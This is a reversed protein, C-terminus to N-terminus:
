ELLSPLFLSVAPVYTVLLLAMLIALYFPWITRLTEEIKVRGVACGVFLCTGVPPTCLGLGLNVLLMIGFQTPDMGLDRVIPLFIPTCILILAAMDMIMGLVLLMINIMLLVAIKEESIGLMFSSLKEPVQYLALLYAFSSAFGILVMVMATTRVASVVATKFGNWDLSRYVFYTLLLAYIAGFAGSETVTFIGSLVGGM